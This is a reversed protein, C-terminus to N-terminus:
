PFYLTVGEFGNPKGYSDGHHEDLQNVITKVLEIADKRSLQSIAKDTQKLLDQTM